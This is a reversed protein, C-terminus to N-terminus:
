GCNTGNFLRKIAQEWEDLADNNGKAHGSRYNKGVAAGGERIPKVKLIASLLAQSAEDIVKDSLTWDEAGMNDDEAGADRVRQLIYVIKSVQSM